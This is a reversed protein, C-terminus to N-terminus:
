AAEDLLLSVLEGIRAARRARAAAPTLQRASILLEVFRLLVVDSRAWLWTAAFNGTGNLASSFQSEKVCATAAAAQHKLGTEAMAQRIISLVERDNVRDTHRVSDAQVSNVGMLGSKSELSRAVRGGTEALDRDTPQVLLGWHAWFVHLAVRLDLRLNSPEAVLKFPALEGPRLGGQRGGSPLDLRKSGL